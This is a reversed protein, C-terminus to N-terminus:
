VMQNSQKDSQSKARSRQQQKQAKAAAKQQQQKEKRILDFSSVIKENSAVQQQEDNQSQSHFLQRKSTAAVVNTTPTPTTETISAIAITATNSGAALLANMLRIGNMNNNNSNRKGNSNSINSATLAVANTGAGKGNLNNLKVGDLDGMSKHRQRRIAARTEKKICSSILVLPSAEANIHNGNNNNTKPSQQGSVKRRRVVPREIGNRRENVWHKLRKVFPIIMFFSNSNKGLKAKSIADNKNIPLADICFWECSRIENRTRPAFHTNLPVNRVIYLRTLQYNIQAEIYDDADILHTIDFGTEEYVERTACHAPDETENIKGKPFGWSNRAFYSQVLLCQNLDESVLIAGYTPVSSKYSKWETLIQDVTGFHKNLFPIHQFIQMAFQKIGVIPLKRKQKLQQPTVQDGDEPACFFDLYFWHALEIQFCIRILNNLEIDPVNIIFRSALDDLIDSPIKSKEPLKISSAKITDVTAVAAATTTASLAKTTDNDNQNNNNKTTTTVVAAAATSRRQRQKQQSTSSTSVVAATAVVANNLLPAIEM